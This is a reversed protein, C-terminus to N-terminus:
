NPCGPALVPEHQIVPASLFVREADSGSGSSSMGAGDPKRRPICGEMTIPARPRPCDIATFPAQRTRPPTCPRHVALFPEWFRVCLALHPGERAPRLRGMTPLSIARLEPRTEGPNAGSAPPTSVKIETGYHTCLPLTGTRIQPNGPRNGPPFPQRLEAPLADSKYDSPRPNLDRRWSWKLFHPFPLRSRRFTKGASSNKPAPGTRRPSGVSTCAGIPRLNEPRPKIRQLRPQFAPLRSTPPTGALLDKDSPHIPM